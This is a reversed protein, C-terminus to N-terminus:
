GKLRYRLRGYEACVPAWIIECQKRENPFYKELVDLEHQVGIAFPCGKCGTRSFNYPEKYIDCIEIDYKEIFWDEWEKTVAVLQQFNFRKKTKWAICNATIRRGGEDPMVGIIAHYKKNEEAWHKMPETKM